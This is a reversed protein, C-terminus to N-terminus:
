NRSSAGAAKLDGGYRIQTAGLIPGVKGDQVIVALGGKGEPKTDVFTGASSGDWKALKRWERVVNTYEISRGRNEGAGIDKVVSSDYGVLWIIADRSDAEVAKISVKVTDGSLEASVTATDKERSYTEVASSVQSHRSGIVDISGDIMLQPTYVHRSRMIKAYDRQRRTNEPLALDDKWGLYDWYDVNLSLAIINEQKTLEKLVKDAPPCSSCGQSTYLEVVVSNEAQAKEAFVAQTLSAIMGYMLVSLKGIKLMAWRHYECVVTATYDYKLRCQTCM